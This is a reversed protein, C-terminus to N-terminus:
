AATGDRAQEQEAPIQIFFQELSGGEHRMERVPWGNTLLLQGLQERVDQSDRPAAVARCWGDHM